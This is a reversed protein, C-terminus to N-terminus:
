PQARGASRWRAVQYYPRDLRGGRDMDSERTPYDMPGRRNTPYLAALADFLIAATRAHEQSGTLAYVDALSPLVNRELEKIIFGNAQAIFYYVKGTKPDRVGDGEDPWDENPYLKGETDRVHFPNRWGAWKMRKGRVPDLNMGLGYIIKSGPPPVLARLQEPTMSIFRRCLKRRSELYKRGWDTERVIRRAAALEDQTCFLRPHRQPALWPAPIAAPCRPAPRSSGGALVQDGMLTASWIFLTLVIGWRRGKSIVRSM